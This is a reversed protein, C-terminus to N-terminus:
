GIITRLITIVYAHQIVGNSFVYEYNFTTFVRPWLYLGGKMADLGENLSYVIIYYMPYIMMLGLILLLVMNFIDFAIDGKSQKMPHYKKGMRRGTMQVENSKNMNVM